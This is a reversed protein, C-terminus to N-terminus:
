RQAAREGASPMTSRRVGSRDAVTGRIMMMMMMVVVLAPASSGPWRWCWREAPRQGRVGSNGGQQEQSGKTTSVALMLGAALIM